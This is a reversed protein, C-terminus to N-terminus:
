AIWHFLYFGQDGGGSMESLKGRAPASSSSSVPDNEESSDSSSEKMSSTKSPTPAPTTSAATSDLASVSAASASSSTSTTAAAKSSSSSSAASSSRGESNAKTKSLSAHSVPGDRGRESLAQQEVDGVAALEDAKRQKARRKRARAKRNRRTKADEEADASADHLCCTRIKLFYYLDDYNAILLLHSPFSLKM